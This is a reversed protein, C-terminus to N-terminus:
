GSRGDEAALEGRTRRSETCIVRGALGEIRSSCCCPHCKPSGRSIEPLDTCCTSYLLRKPVKKKYQSAQFSLPNEWIYGTM